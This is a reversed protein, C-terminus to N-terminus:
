YSSILGTLIYAELILAGLYMCSISISMFPSVSPFVIITPSNLVGNVDLPLDELCFILLPVSSRFSLISFNSKISMKLVNCGFFYSFLNNEFACPVNDLISWM